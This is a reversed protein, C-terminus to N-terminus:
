IKEVEELIRQKHESVFKIFDECLVSYTEPDITIGYKLARNHDELAESFADLAQMRKHLSAVHEFKDLTM